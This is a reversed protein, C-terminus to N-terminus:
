WMQLGFSCAHAPVHLTMGTILIYYHSNRKSAGVPGRTGGNWNVSVGATRIFSDSKRNEDREKETEGGRDNDNTEQNRTQM